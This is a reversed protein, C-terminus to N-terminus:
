GEVPTLPSPAWDKIRNEQWAVYRRYNDAERDVYNARRANLVIAANTRADGAGYGYTATQHREGSADIAYFGDESINEVPVHNWFYDRRGRPDGPIKKYVHLWVNKPSDDKLLTSSDHELYAVRDKARAIADEILDISQEFPLFGAGPCVGSFFGWEKTYGHKSLLGGPLKQFRGCIQCHGNHTAKAM